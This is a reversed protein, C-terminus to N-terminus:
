GLGKFYSSMFKQDPDQPLIVNVQAVGEAPLRYLSMSFSAKARHRSARAKSALGESVNSGVEESNWCTNFVLQSMWGQPRFLEQIRPSEM